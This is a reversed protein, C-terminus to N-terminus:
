LRRELGKALIGPNFDENVVRAPACDGALWFAVGACKRGLLIDTAAILLAKM